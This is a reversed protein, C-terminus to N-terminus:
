TPKKWTTENTATNWYYADGSDTLTKVWPKPLEVFGKPAKKAEELRKGSNDDMETFDPVDGWPIRGEWFYDDPTNLVINVFQYEVYAAMRRLQDNYCEEDRNLVHVWVAAALEEFRRKPDEAYEQFAHDYHTCHLFTLQQADKLHKNVTLENVGEARIRARTDNWLIDFLEEQVLLAAHPDVRDALLRKHLFWVHMTLIAHRPRFEYPIRGERYWRLDNARFQAGRFLREGLIIRKTQGEFSYRDWLKAFISKNSGTKEESYPDSTSRAASGSSTSPSDGGSPPKPVTSLPSPASSFNCLQQGRFLISSSALSTIPLILSSTSVSPSLRRTAGRHHVTFYSHHSLCRRSLVCANPANLGAIRHATANIASLPVIPAKNKPKLSCLESPQRLAMRILPPLTM